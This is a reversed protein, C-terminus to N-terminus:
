QVGSYHMKLLLYQGLRGQGSVSKRQLDLVM